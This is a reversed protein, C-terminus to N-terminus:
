LRLRNGGQSFFGQNLGPRAHVGGHAEVELISSVDAITMRQSPDRDWCGQIMDWVRDSVERHDPRLPRDNKFVLSIM